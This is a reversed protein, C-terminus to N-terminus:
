CNALFEELQQDEKASLASNGGKFILGKQQQNYAFIGV